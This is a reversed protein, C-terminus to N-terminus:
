GQLIVERGDPDHVIVFIPEQKVLKIGHYKLDILVSPMDEVQLVITGQQAQGIEFGLLMGGVELNFYSEDEDAVTEGDKEFSGVRLGLVDVYFRRTRALDPTEFM